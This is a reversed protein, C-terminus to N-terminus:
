SCTDSDLSSSPKVRAYFGLELKDESGQEKATYHASAHAYDLALFFLPNIKGEENKRRREQRSFFKGRGSLIFFSFHESSNRV